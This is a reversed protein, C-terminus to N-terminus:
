DAAEEAVELRAGVSPTPAVRRFVAVAADWDELLATGRVSGTLEVHQEVLARLRDADEECLPEIAVLEGNLRVALRNAPDHVFIEGGSMGAGVNRGYPGLV